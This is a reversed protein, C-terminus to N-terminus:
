LLKSVEWAEEPGTDREAVQFDPPLVIQIEVLVM